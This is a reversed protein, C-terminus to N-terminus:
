RKTQPGKRGSGNAPTGKGADTLRVTIGVGRWGARVAKEEASERGYLSRAARVTERAFGRFDVDLALKQLAVTEFWVRGAREWAHGGLSEAALFFARNPIGSNLHVGGNDERTRVYGDMHDPQPDKGLVPDDYATGPAKMSRVGVGRIGPLFIGEGVIWSASEVTDGRSFQEVLVGFVDAFSENLAGTQGEYALDTTHQLLGHGLEHAIISLSSTFSAFVKGDGDGFVMRFGDWFANDYAVGFHVTGELALGAGDISSQAFVEKLFRYTEGLGDYARNADADAVPDQGEKRLPKGPLRETGEADSIERYLAGPDRLISHEPEATHAERRSRLRQDTLLTRRAVEAVAELGRTDEAWGNPPGEGRLARARREDYTAIRELLYPPIAGRHRQVSVHESNSM